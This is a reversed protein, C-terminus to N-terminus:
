QENEEENGEGEYGYEEEEVEERDDVKEDENGGSNPRNGQGMNVRNRQDIQENLRRLEEEKQALIDLKNM